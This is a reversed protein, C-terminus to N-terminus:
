PITDTNSAETQAPPIGDIAILAEIASRVIPAAVVSGFAGEGKPEDVVALIVYRPAEIPFIGVFSSIRLNSYYGGTPSAKQATGSKGGIRYGEIRANKGSNANVVSEMMKLVADTNTKSFVQRPPQRQPQWLRDGKSNILGEVLYPTVLNGGNAIAAHLQVLKFPSLSFGQGFASTAAEVASETFKAENKLQGATEGPLEIGLKQDLGLNKLAQYYDQRQMQRVVQVMGVNSSYQLIQDLTLTGRGGRSDFDHNKITWPGVQISGTDNFTSSPNIAGAELAIAINIPKFTSGPEYLDSVTWNKFLRVDSKYYQNPDFTPESALARVAGSRVDMVIVAGRKAQFQKVQQQLAFRVARQLRLDLTLQLQQDDVEVFGEPVRDPMLTGMGTRNLRLSVINRELLKQQSYELGAQAHHERDVYGIADSVLDQQPYLRSYQRILEIGDISLTSVRDAVDEQVDYAIPIGSKRKGFKAAIETASMPALVEGLKTAVEVAPIKFLKPHAYLTYVLRDTALVTGHRDVIQRRPVYPRMYVQQQQRAKRQLEPADAIQLRYLNVALGAAFAALVGWVLLLRGWQWSQSNELRELSKLFIRGWLVPLAVESNPKRRITRASSAKRANLRRQERQQPSLFRSKARSM